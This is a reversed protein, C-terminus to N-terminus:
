KDQSPFDSAVERFIEALAQNWGDMLAAPSTSKIPVWRSYNRQLIVKGAMGNTANLFIIQVALVAGPSEPKRIDGYLENVNIEVLADPKVAGGAPVVANFLGDGVLMGSIPTVLLESPLGLFESYSDRQYSFEGTRYVFSRGDFPPSVRLSKIGLVRGGAVENTASGPTSFAFTQKNLAPRSLCGSVALALFAVGFIRVTWYKFHKM